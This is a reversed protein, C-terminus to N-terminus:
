HFENGPIVRKNLLLGTEKIRFVSVQPQKQTATIAVDLKQPAPIAKM